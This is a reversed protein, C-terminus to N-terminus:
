KKGAPVEPIEVHTTWMLGIMRIRERFVDWDIPKCMYLNAGLAYARKVDEQLSSSSMVITPILRLEGPSKSRLWELFDFGDLGPMKLDLLIVNPLPHKERDAYRGEGELYAIAQPINELHLLRVNAPANQFERRVFYVDNPDDELLLFIMPKM